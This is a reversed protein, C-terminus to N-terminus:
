VGGDQGGYTVEGTEGGRPSPSPKMKMEVHHTQGWVEM